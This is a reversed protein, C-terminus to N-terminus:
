KKGFFKKKFKSKKEKDGSKPPRGPQKLADKKPLLPPLQEIDNVNEADNEDKEQINEMLVQVTSLEVPTQEEAVSVNEADVHELGITAGLKASAMRFTDSLKIQVVNVCMSTLALGFILYIISAMMFMPHDPVLDGFGITSMSIFVFYFSEFFNWQEWINYVAAGILMYIILISLALSIPLNFEDDIEIEEPLTTPSDCTPRSITSARSRPSINLDQAPTNQHSDDTQLVGLTTVMQSPRRVIDYMVNIGRMMEQVQPQKRVKRCSGTYYLRRVYAWLFKIIRTFLKGFDALVILFLPVGIIAYVITLAKGTKTKPVIHGYGITTYVTGCFFMANWFSWKATEKDYNGEILHQRLAAEYNLIMQEIDTKLKTDNFKQIESVPPQMTYNLIQEILDTRNNAIDRRVRREARGEIMQFLAAGAMSYLLVVITLFIHTFTSRSWQAVKNYMWFAYKEGFGLGSKATNMTFDRFGEFQKFIFEGAKQPYMYDVYQFGNTSGPLGTAPAFYTTAPETPRSTYTPLTIKPRTKTPKENNDANEVEM